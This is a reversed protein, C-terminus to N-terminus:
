GQHEGTKLCKRWCRVPCMKTSKDCKWAKSTDMFCRGHYIENKGSYNSHTATEKCAYLKGKKYGCKSNCNIHSNKEAASEESSELTESNCRIFDIYVLLILSLHTKMIDQM